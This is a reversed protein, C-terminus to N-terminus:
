MNASLKIPTLPSAFSYIFYMWGAWILGLGAMIILDILVPMSWARILFAISAHANPV